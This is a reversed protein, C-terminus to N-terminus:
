RMIRVDGVSLVYYIACTDDGRPVEFIVRLADRAICDGVGLRVPRVTIKEDVKDVFVIM